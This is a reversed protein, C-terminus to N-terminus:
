ATKRFMSPIACTTHVLGGRVHVYDEARQVKRGCTMCRDIADDRRRRLEREVRTVFRTDLASAMVM